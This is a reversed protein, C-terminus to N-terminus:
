SPRSVRAVALVVVRDAGADFCATACANLTAGTTMVDDVLVVSAGELKTEREPNVRISEVLIEAREHRSKGKLSPTAVIRHLADPVFSLDMRKAVHRALESAQNYKRLLLRRWHLPVPVVISQPGIVSSGAGVLWGALVPSIDLRDGHKLMMVLNRGTGEYAVATRGRSWVPRRRNCDECVVVEDSQASPVSVGCLDCVAGSFFSIDSWCNRCLGSPADTLEHCAVCRPPYVADVVVRALRSQWTM